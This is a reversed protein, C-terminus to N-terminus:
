PYDRPILQADEKWWRTDGRYYVQSAWYHPEEHGLLGLEMESRFRKRHRWFANMRGVAEAQSISFLRTMETAIETLYDLAEPTADIEFHDEGVAGSPWRFGPTEPPRLVAARQRLSILDAGNPAAGGTLLDVAWRVFDVARAVDPEAMIAQRQHNEDPGDGVQLVGFLRETAHQLVPELAYWIAGGARYDGDVLLRIPVDGCIWCDRAATELRTGARDALEGPPASDELAQLLEPGDHPIERGWLAFRYGEALAACLIPETRAEALVAWEQYAAFLGSSCAWYLAVASRRPLRDIRAALDGTLTELETAM